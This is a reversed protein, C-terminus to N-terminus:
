IKTFFTRNVSKKSRALKAITAADITTSHNTEQARNKRDNMFAAEHYM